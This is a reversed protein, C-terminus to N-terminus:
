NIEISIHILSLVLSTQENELSVGGQDEPMANELTSLKLCQLKVTPVDIGLYKDKIGPTLGVIDGERSMCNMNFM